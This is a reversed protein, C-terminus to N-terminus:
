VRFIGGAKKFANDFTRIRAFINKEMEKLEPENDEGANNLQEYQPYISDRINELESIASRMKNKVIDDTEASLIDSLEGLKYNLDDIKQHTKMILEEKDM